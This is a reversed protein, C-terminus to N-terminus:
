AATHKDKERGKGNKGPREDSSTKNEKKKKQTNKPKQKKKKKKKKTSFRLKQNTQGAGKSVGKGNTPVGLSEREERERNPTPGRQNPGRTTKGGELRIKKLLHAEVKKQKTFAV